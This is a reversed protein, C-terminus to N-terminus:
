QYKKYNIAIDIKKFQSISNLAARVGIYFTINFIREAPEQWNMEIEIDLCKRIRSKRTEINPTFM